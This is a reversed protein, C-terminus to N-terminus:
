PGELVLEIERDTSGYLVVYKEGSGSLGLYGSVTGFELESINEDYLIWQAANGITLTGSAPLRLWIGVRQEEVDLLTRGEDLLPVGSKPRLLAGGLWLWDQENRQEIVADYLGRMADPANLFLGDLREPSPPNMERLIGGAAMYGNLGPIAYLRVAPTTSRDPFAIFLENNVPLWLEELRALWVDSIPSAEELMQAGMVTTSYHPNAGASRISLYKGDLRTLFQLGTVPDADPAYWGDKRLKYDKFLPTWETEFLDVTLSDDEEFEVRLIGNSSAYFGSYTEKEQQTVAQVPLAESPLPKPMESLKGNEVLARLLIRTSIETAHASTFQNALSGTAGMVVVAMNVSPVVLINVGYYGSIDGGKQWGIVGELGPQAITDWGLGFRFNENPVPNFTGARQDQAMKTVADSSLVRHSGYIGDNLFMMGLYSLEEATSFLGGTAYINLAPLPTLAQGDYSKAYGNEPLPHDQFQALTMGMPEFIEDRVFDPYGKGTVAKILSQIVTFGDNNYGSMAGPEHLLRQHKIGKLLDSEYEPLPTLSVEGPEYGPIGSSHNLLMRVTIDRYREDLPMSFEPLYTILPEDLAIEGRDVLIMVAVAAFMKSISCIAYLTQPTASLGADRDAMGFAESWIVGKSDVLAVSVSAAGTREMVERVAERSEAIIAKRTAEGDSTADCAVLFISVLLYLYLSTTRTM